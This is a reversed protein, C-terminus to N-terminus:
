RLRRRITAAFGLIGTGLLALSSPEPTPAVSATLTSPTGDAYEYSGPELVMYGDSTDFGVELPLVPGSIPGISTTGTYTSFAANQTGLIIYGSGGNGYISVGAISTVQNDFFEVSQDITFTGLGGIQITAMGPIYYLPDGYVPTGRGITGIYGTSNYVLDSTDGSFTVTVDPYFTGALDNQSSVYASDSVTVTIPDAKAALGCALLAFVAVVTRMRM